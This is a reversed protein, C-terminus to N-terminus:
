FFRLSYLDADKMVFHLKVTKGSLSRVDSGKKWAVIRSIEDGLMEPCDTLSFDPIPIGKEDQIEVRVGGAASSAFNIELTNGTFTFPKTLMEGARYPAHISIFGDTRLTYRALHVTPQAYHALRYIFMERENAPVVGLAPTNDRAIWDHATPGPRIFAELFTREYHNGGRSTMFISDSSAVRYHPNAVLEKAQDASVAVKDPFFRKALGIYIHPARFYPHTGNTYLEEPPTDGFEMDVPETWNLFDKSTTRSIWRCNKGDPLKKYTRFYCLYANESASWFAVNQSDFVGNTFVPGPQMPAWHIGDASKFAHLGTKMYGSLAKYKEEPVVGPRDDLFPSFNHAYPPNTWVVNNSLTGSIEFLGLNPKTWSIGDKSEAYCVSENSSGDKGAIPLGRYFMRYLDGDKFVTIYCSWGGEWPADFEVAPGERHPEHMKFEVGDMKEILFKDVFLERRSGLDIPDAAFCCVTSILLVVFQICRTMAACKLPVKGQHWRLKEIMRSIYAAVIRTHPRVFVPQRLARATGITEMDVM